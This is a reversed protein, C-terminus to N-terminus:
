RCTVAVLDGRPLYQEPRARERLRLQVRRGAVVEVHREVPHPLLHHRHPDPGRAAAGLPRGRLPDGRGRQHLAPERLEVDEVEHM